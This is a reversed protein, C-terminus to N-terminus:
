SRLNKNYLYEKYGDAISIAMKEYPHESTQTGPVPKYEVDHISKPNKTYEAINIKNNADKYIYDDTDPNIRARTENIHKYRSYKNAEIYRNANRKFIRQIVHVREHILTNIFNPSKVLDVPMVIVNGRTHPLGNEYLTGDILVIRWQIKRNDKNDFWQLSVQNLYDDAKEIGKFILDRIDASPFTVSKEIKKMYEDLNKVKRVRWDLDRFKTFYGDDCRTLYDIGEGTTLIKPEFHRRKYIFFGGFFFLLIILIILVIFM